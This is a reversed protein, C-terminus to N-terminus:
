ISNQISSLTFRDKMKVPFKLKTRKIKCEKKFLHHFDVNLSGHNPKNCNDLSTVPLPTIAAKEISKWSRVNEKQEPGIDIDIDLGTTYNEFSEMHKLSLNRPSKLETKVHKQTDNYKRASYDGIVYHFHYVGYCLCVLALVIMGVGVTAITRIRNCRLIKHNETQSDLNICTIYENGTVVEHNTLNHCIEITREQQIDNIESYLSELCIYHDSNESYNNQTAISIAGVIDMQQQTHEINTSSM